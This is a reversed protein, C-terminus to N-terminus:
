SNALRILQQKLRENDIVFEALQTINERTSESFVTSTTEVHPQLQNTSQTISLNVVRFSLKQVSQFTPENHLQQILHQHHYNLHNAITHSNTSISLTQQNFGYVLLTTLISDPLLPQWVQVLLQTLRQLEHFQHQFPMKFNACQEHLSALYNTPKKMATQHHKTLKPNVM